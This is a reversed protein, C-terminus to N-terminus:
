TQAADAACTACVGHMADRMLTAPALDRAQLAARELEILRADAVEELRHCRVCFLHHHDYDALEYYHVLKSGGPYVAVRSLVGAACLEYIAMRFSSIACRHSSQLMAVCLSEATQHRSACATLVRIVTERSITLDVGHRALRRAVSESDLGSEPAADKRPTINRLPRSVSAM